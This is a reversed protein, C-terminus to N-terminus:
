LEPFLLGIETKATDVADSGHVANSGKHAGYLKRITNAEAKEPDTNGMLNRWAEIAGDKEIAMAVIPGSTMLTVLEDFFFQGSHADYFLKALEETMQMKKLGIINFDAQEIRDIIKGVNGDRVADPKIMVCTREIAM